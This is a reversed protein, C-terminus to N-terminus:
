LSLRSEWFNDKEFLCNLRSSTFWPATQTTPSNSRAGSSGTTVGLGCKEYRSAIEGDRRQKKGPSAISNGFLMLPHTRLRNEVRGGHRSSTKLDNGAGKNAKYLGSM